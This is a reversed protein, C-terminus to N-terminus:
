EQASPTSPSSVHDLSTATATTVSTTATTAATIVAPSPPPPPLMCLSECARETARLNDLLNFNANHVQGLVQLLKLTNQRTSKLTYDMNSFQRATESLPEPLEADVNATKIIAIFDSATAQAKDKLQLKSAWSGDDVFM